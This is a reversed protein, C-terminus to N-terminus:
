PIQRERQSRPPSVGGVDERRPVPVFAAELTANRYYCRPSRCCSRAFRAHTRPFSRWVCHSCLLRESCVAPSPLHSLFFPCLRALVPMDLNLEDLNLEDLNLEDLNLEDLNLEDLNLEDLNLEDILYARKAESTSAESTCRACTGRSMRRMMSERGVVSPPPPPGEELKMAAEVIGMQETNLTSIYPPMKHERFVEGDVGDGDREMVRQLTEVARLPRWGRLPEMQVVYSVQCRNTNLPKFEWFGRMAGRVASSATPHAAVSYYLSKTVSADPYSDVDTFALIVTGDPRLSWAFWVAFLRDTVGFGLTVQAVCMHSGCVHTFLPSPPTFLPARTRVFPSPPTFAFPSPEATATDAPLMTPLMPLEDSVQKVELMSHSGDLYKTERFAEKGFEEEHQRGHEYCDRRFVNAFVELASADVTGVAKTWLSASGGTAGGDGGTGGDCVSLGLMERQSLEAKYYQVTGGGSGVPKIKKYERAGRAVV